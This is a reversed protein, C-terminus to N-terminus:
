PRNPLERALRTPAEGPTSAGLQVQEATGQVEVKERRRLTPVLTLELALSQGESLDLERKLPEFGDKTVSIEYRYAELGTFEAHGGPDTAASAPKGGATTLHIRVEAPPQGGQDLVSVSVHPSAAWAAAQWVLLLTWSRM